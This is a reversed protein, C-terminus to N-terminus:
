HDAGVAALAVRELRGVGAERKRRRCRGVAGGASATAGRGRAQADEAGVAADQVAPCGAALLRGLRSRLRLPRMRLPQRSERVREAARMWSVRLPTESRALRFRGRGDGGFRGLRRHCPAWLTTPACRSAGRAFGPSDVRGSVTVAGSSAFMFGSRDVRQARHEGMGGPWAAGRVAAVVHPRGSPMSGVSPRCGRRIRGASTTPRLAWAPRRARPPQSWV